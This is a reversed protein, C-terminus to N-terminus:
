SPVQLPWLIVSLLPGANCEGTCLLNGILWEYEEVGLAVMGARVASVQGYCPPPVTPGRAYAVVNGPAPGAIM